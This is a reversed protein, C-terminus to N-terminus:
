GVDKVEWGNDTRCFIVSGSHSFSDGKRRNAKEGGHIVGDVAEPDSFYEECRLTHEWDHTCNNIVELTADYDLRRCSRGFVEFSAGDTQKISVVRFHRNAGEVAPRLDSEGPANASRVVMWGIILVASGFLWFRGRHALAKLQALPPEKYEFSVPAPRNLTPSFAADATLTRGCNACRGSSIMSGYEPSMEDYVSGCAFCRVTARQSDSM